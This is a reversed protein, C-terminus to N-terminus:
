VTKLLSSNTYQIQSGCRGSVKKIAAAAANAADSPKVHGKKNTQMFAMTITKATSEVIDTRTGGTAAAAVAAVGASQQVSQGSALAARAAGIGSEISVVSKIAGAKKATAAAAAGAASPKGHKAIVAFV